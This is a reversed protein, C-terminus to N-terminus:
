SSIMVSCHLIKLNLHFLHGQIHVPYNPTEHTCQMLQGNVVRITVLKSLHQWNDVSAALQSSVFSNSSGFDLLIVIPKTGFQGALRVTQASNTGQIASLSIQMFDEGLDTSHKDLKPSTAEDEDSILQWLEDM